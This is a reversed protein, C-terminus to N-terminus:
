TLRHKGIQSALGLHPFKSQNNRQVYRSINYTFTSKYAFYNVFQVMGQM